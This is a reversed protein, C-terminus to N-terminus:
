IYIDSFAQMCSMFHRGEHPSFIACCIDHSPGQYSRLCCCTQLSVQASAQRMKILDSQMENVTQELM